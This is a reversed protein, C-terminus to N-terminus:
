RSSTSPSAKTPSARWRRGSSRTHAEGSIPRRLIGRAAPFVSPDLIAAALVSKEAEVEILLKKEM